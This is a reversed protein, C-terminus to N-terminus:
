TPGRGASSSSPWTQVCTVGRARRWGCGNTGLKTTNGRHCGPLRERQALRGRMDPSCWPKMGEDASSTSRRRTFASSRFRMRPNRDASGALAHASRELRMTARTAEISAIVLALATASKQGMSSRWSTSRRASSAIRRARPARTAYGATISSPRVIIKRNALLGAAITGPGRPGLSGASVSGTADGPSISAM